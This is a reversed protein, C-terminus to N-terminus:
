PVSDGNRVRVLPHSAPAVVWAGSSLAFAGDATFAVIEGDCHSIGRVPAATPLSPLSHYARREIHDPSHYILVRHEIAFTAECPLPFLDRRHRNRASRRNM